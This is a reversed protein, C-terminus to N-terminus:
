PIRDRSASDPPCARVRSPARDTCRRRPAAHRPPNKILYGNARALTALPQDVIPSEPARAVPNAPISAGVDHAPARVARLSELCSSRGSGNYKLMVEIAIESRGF